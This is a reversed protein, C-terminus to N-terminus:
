NALDRLRFWLNYDNGHIEGETEIPEDYNPYMFYMVYSTPMEDYAKPEPGFSRYRLRYLALAATDFDLRGARRGVSKSRKSRPEFDADSEMMLFVILGSPNSQVYDPLLSWLYDHDLNTSSVVACLATNIENEMKNLFDADPVNWKEEPCIYHLYERGLSQCFVIHKGEVSQISQSALLSWFDPHCDETRLM